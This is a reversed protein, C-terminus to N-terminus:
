NGCKTMFLPGTGGYIFVPIGLGAKSVGCFGKADSLLQRSPLNLSRAKTDLRLTRRNKSSTLGSKRTAGSLDVEPVFFIVIGLGIMVVLTQEQPKSRTLAGHAFRCATLMSNPIVSVPKYMAGYLLGNRGPLFLLVFFEFPGV